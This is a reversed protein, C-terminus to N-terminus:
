EVDPLTAGAAILMGRACEYVPWLEHETREYQVPVRTKNWGNTDGIERLFGAGALSGLMPAVSPPNAGLIDAVERTYLKSEPNAVWLCAAAVRIPSGFVVQIQGLTDEPIYVNKM